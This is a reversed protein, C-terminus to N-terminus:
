GRLMEPVQAEGLVPTRNLVSQLDVSKEKSTKVLTRIRSDTPPSLLVVWRLPDDHLDSSDTAKTKPIHVKTLM